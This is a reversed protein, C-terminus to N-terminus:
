RRRRKAAIMAVLGLSLLLLTSPEPVSTYEIRLEPPAHATATELSVLHLIAFSDTVIQLTLLDNASDMADQLPVVSTLTWVIESGNALGLTEAFDGVNTGATDHDGILVTGDGPYGSLHNPVPNGGTNSMTGNKVVALVVSDITAGEPIDDLDFELIVRKQLGGSRSLVLTDGATDVENTGWTKVWGDADPVVTISLASASSTTLLALLLLWALRSPCGIM